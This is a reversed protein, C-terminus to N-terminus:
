VGHRAAMVSAWVQAFQSRRSNHTCIFVLPITKKKKMKESLYAALDGLVRRREEPIVAEEPLDRLYEILAPM